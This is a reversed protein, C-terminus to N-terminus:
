FQFGLKLGLFHNDIQNSVLESGEFPLFSVNTRRLDYGLQTYVKVTNIDLLYIGYALGLVLGGDYEFNENQSNGRGWAYGAQLDVFHDAKKGFKKKFKGTLPYLIGDKNKEIGLNAGVATSESVEKSVGLSLHLASNYTFFYLNGSVGVMYGGVLNYILPKPQQTQASVSVMTCVSFIFILILKNFILNM